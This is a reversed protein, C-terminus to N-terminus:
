VQLEDHQIDCVQCLATSIFDIRNKVNTKSILGMVSSTGHLNIKKVANQAVPGLM